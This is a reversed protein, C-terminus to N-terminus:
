TRLHGIKVGGQIQVWLEPPCNGRKGKKKLFQGQKKKEFNQQSQQAIKALSACNKEILDIKKSRLKKYSLNLVM